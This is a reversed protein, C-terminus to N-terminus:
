PTSSYSRFHINSSSYYGLWAAPWPYSWWRNNPRGPCNHSAYKLVDCVHTPPTNGDSPIHLVFAYTNGAVIPIPTFTREYETYEPNWKDSPPLDFEFLAPGKPTHDPNTEHFTWIIKQPPDGQSSMRMRTVAKTMSYSSTPKFNWAWASNAWLALGGILTNGSHCKLYYVGSLTKFYKPYAWGYRDMGYDHSGISSFKYETDPDLGSITEPWNHVSPYPGIIPTWNNYDDTKTYRMRAYAPSGKDDLIRGHIIASTATIDTADDVEMVPLAMHTFSYPPSISPSEIGDVSGLAVIWYIVDNLPAPIHFTHETVDGEENQDISAYWRFYLEADHHFVVGRTVHTTLSIWPKSTGLLVHLHCAIDTTITLDYHTDTWSGQMVQALWPAGEKPKTPTPLWFTYLKGFGYGDANRVQCQYACNSIYSLDACHFEITEGEDVDQWTTYKWM